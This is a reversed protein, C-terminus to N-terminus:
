AFAPDFRASLGDDSLMRPQTDKNSRSRSRHERVPRMKMRRAVSCEEGLAEAKIAERFWATYDGRKLHYISQAAPHRHFDGLGPEGAALHVRWASQEIKNRRAALEGFATHRPGCFM